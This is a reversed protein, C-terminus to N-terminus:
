AEEGSFVLAGFREPTHYNRRLTPSWASYEDGDEARDIRYFNARWVDGARPPIHPATLMDAFPIAMEVSVGDPPHSGRSRVAGGRPPSSALRGTKRNREIRVM